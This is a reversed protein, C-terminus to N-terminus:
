VIARTKNRFFIINWVTPGSGRVTFFAPTRQNWGRQYHLNRMVGDLDDESSSRTSMNGRIGDTQRWIVAISVWLDSYMVCVGAIRHVRRILVGPASEGKMQTGRIVYCLQTPPIERLWLERWDPWARALRPPIWDADTGMVAQEGSYTDCRNLM